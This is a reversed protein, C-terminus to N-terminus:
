EIPESADEEVKTVRECFALLEVLQLRDFYELPVKEGRTLGALKAIREHIQERSLKNM